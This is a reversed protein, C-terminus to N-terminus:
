GRKEGTYFTLVVNFTGCFLNYSLFESKRLMFYFETVSRETGTTRTGILVKMRRTGKM